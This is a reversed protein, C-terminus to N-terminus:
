REGIIFPLLDTNFPLTTKSSGEFCHGSLDGVLVLKGETLQLASGERIALVKTHPEIHTYEFLRDDRTEGNHNPPQYDTYHPNLQCPIINLASFSPPEVIPMDNTTRISKGCINSGASWGIYPMGATIRNQLATILDYRYLENLLNFTNGGGVLVAQAEQLARQPEDCHHIGRINLSPLAVRVKNVYDDWGITVGAYPIFIVDKINGLHQAILSQAHALYTGNGQRSSSLMLVHQSTYHSHIPM